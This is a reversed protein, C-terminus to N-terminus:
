ERELPFGPTRRPERPLFGLTTMEYFGPDGRERPHCSLDSWEASINRLRFKGQITM